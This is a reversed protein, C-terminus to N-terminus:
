LEMKLMEYNKLQKEYLQGHNRIFDIMMTFALPNRDIFISGNINNLSHRGSFMAHLASGEVHQLTSKLVFM